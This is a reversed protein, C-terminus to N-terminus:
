KRKSALFEGVARNFEEAAEEYPLHGVGDFTLLRCQRFEQKLRVASVPNVAGDLSGWILLTPIDAIKPLSLRLQRLDRNWSRLVSLGYDLSSPQRQMPKLYGELSDPPIRRSDGYLRRFYFEQLLRLHPGFALLTPAIPPSTLFRSLWAGRGSWPNVPAALIMRRVRGPNLAAAMMTVAGGHSTGLVDCHDLGLADMFRLLRESCARMSCDLSRPRDSFGTGPMDMAYVTAQHALAPITFRWSFSYGLLGHVLLLPPGSGARQYRWGVGDLTLRLEEINNRKTVRSPTRNV